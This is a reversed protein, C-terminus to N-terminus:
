SRNAWRSGNASPSSFSSCRLTSNIGACSSFRWMESCTSFSATSSHAFGPPRIRQVYEVGDRFDPSDLRAAIQGFVFHEVVGRQPIQLRELFRGLQQWFVLFCCKGAYGPAFDGAKAVDEHVVIQAIDIGQCDLVDDFLVQLRKFFADFGHQLLM